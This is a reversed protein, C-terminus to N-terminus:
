TLFLNLLSSAVTICPISEKSRQRTDRPRLEIVLASEYFKEDLGPKVENLVSMSAGIISKTIQEYLM